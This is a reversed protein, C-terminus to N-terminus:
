CLDSNGVKRARVTRDLDIGSAIGTEVLLNWGAAIQLYLGYESQTPIRFTPFLTERDAIAYVSLSIKDILREKISKEEGPFPDVLVIVDNASMVEEIGHLLYTGELFCSPRRVIENTKLTLEEAVGNNRGAFYIMPAESMREVWESPIPQELVERFLDGSTAPPEPEKGSLAAILYHYFLGEEIVSKTAAVAGEKGCSLVHSFDAERTLPSDPTSTVGILTPNRDSRKKKLERFLLLLEKTQGSNSAGLVTSNDLNFELSELSGATFLKKEHPESRYRAITQRAPFIRSSGEGTFLVSESKEMVSVLHEDERLSYSGLIDPVSLMDKCLEYRKYKADILNM